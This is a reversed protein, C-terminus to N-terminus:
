RVMEAAREGVVGKPMRFMQVTGDNQAVCFCYFWVLGSRPFVYDLLCRISFFMTNQHYHMINTTSFHYLNNSNVTFSNKIRRRALKDNMEGM